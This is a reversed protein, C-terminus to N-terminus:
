SSRPPTSARCTWGSASRAPTEYLDIPPRGNRNPCPRRAAADATAPRATPTAAVGRYHDYLRQLEDQLTNLGLPAAFERGWAQDVHM